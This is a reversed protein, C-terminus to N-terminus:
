VSIANVCQYFGEFTGGYVSEGGTGNGNSFDGGQIIFDKVVRHFIVDQVCAFYSGYSSCVNQFCINTRSVKYNLPKKTTQGLGKEGTCLSRFNECTKPVVDNFLEFVVRGSPLGGISVDFFCRSREAATNEEMAEFILGLTM